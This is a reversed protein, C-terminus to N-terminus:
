FPSMKLTFIKKVVRYFPFVTGACFFWRSFPFAKYESIHQLQSAVTAIKAIARPAQESIIFDFGWDGVGPSPLVNIEGTSPMFM